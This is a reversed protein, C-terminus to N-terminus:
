NYLASCIPCKRNCKLWASICESHFSHGCLGTNLSSVLGNEIAYLSESNLSQRCITCETNKDMIYSWSSIMNVNNIKIFNNSM